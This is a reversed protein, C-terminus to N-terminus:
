ILEKVVLPLLVRMAAKCFCVTSSAGSLMVMLGVCCCGQDSGSGVLDAIYPLYREISEFAARGICCGAIRHYPLRWNLWCSPPGQLGRKLM